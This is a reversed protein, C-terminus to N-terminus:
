GNEGTEASLCFTARLKVIATGELAQFLIRLLKLVIKLTNAQKQDSDLAPSQRQPLFNKITYLPQRQDKRPPTSQRWNSFRAASERRYCPNLDRRPRWILILSM